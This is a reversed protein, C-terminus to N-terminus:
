GPMCAIVRSTMMRATKPTASSRSAGSRSERPEIRAAVVDGRLRMSDILVDSLSPTKGLVRWAIASVSSIRRASIEACREASSRSSRVSM